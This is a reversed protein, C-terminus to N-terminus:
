VYTNCTEKARKQAALAERVGIHTSSYRAVTRVFVHARHAVLCLVYPPKTCYPRRPSIGVSYGGTGWVPLSTRVAPSNGMISRLKIKREYCGSPDETGELKTRATKVKRCTDSHQERNGLDESAADCIYSLGKTLFLVSWAWSSWPKWEALM